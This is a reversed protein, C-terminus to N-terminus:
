YRQELGAKVFLAFYRKRSSESYSFATCQARRRNAVVFPLSSVFIFNAVLFIARTATIAIIMAAADDIAEACTSFEPACAIARLAVSASDNVSLKDALATLKVSVPPLAALAPLVLM